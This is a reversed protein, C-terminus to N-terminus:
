RRYNFDTFAGDIEQNRVLGLREQLNDVCLIKHLVVASVTSILVSKGGRMGVAGV